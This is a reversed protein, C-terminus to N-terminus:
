GRGLWALLSSRDNPVREAMVDALLASLREGVAPGPAIGCAAMVDAGSVALDRTSWCLGEREIKELVAEHDDLERAYIRYAPAKALADARRLCVLEHMLELVEDRRKLGSMAAVSATLKLM